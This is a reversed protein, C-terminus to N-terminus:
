LYFTEHQNPNKYFAKQLINNIIVTIINNNSLIFNSSAIPMEYCNSYFYDETITKMNFISLSM